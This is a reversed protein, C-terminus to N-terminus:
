LDVEQKIDKPKLEIGAARLEADSLSKLDGNLSGKIFRSYTFWSVVHSVTWAQGRRRSERAAVMQLAKYYDAPITLRYENEHLEHQKRLEAEKQEYELQLRNVEEATHNEAGVLRAELEKNASSLEEIRSLLEKNDDMAQQHANVAQEIQRRLEATEDKVRIPDYFSQVLLGFVQADTPLGTEEKIKRYLERDSGYIRFSAPVVTRQDKMEETM